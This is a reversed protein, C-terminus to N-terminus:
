KTSSPDSVPSPPPLPADKGPQRDMPLSTLFDILHDFDRRVVAKQLNDVRADFWTAESSTSTRADENAMTDGSNKQVVIRVEAHSGDAHARLLSLGMEDDAAEFAWPGTRALVLDGWSPAHGVDYFDFRTVIMVTQPEGSPVEVPDTAQALTRVHVKKDVAQTRRPATEHGALAERLPARLAISAAAVGAVAETSAAGDGGTTVLTEGSPTSWRVDIGALPRENEDVVVLKYPALKEVPPNPPPEPPEEPLPIDYRPEPLEEIQLSGAFVAFDLAREVERPLESLCLEYEGDRFRDAYDHDGELVDYVEFLVERFYSGDDVGGQAQVRLSLLHGKTDWREDPSLDLARAIPVTIRLEKGFSRLSWEYRDFHRFGRQLHRRM